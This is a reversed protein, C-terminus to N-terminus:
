KLLAPGLLVGALLQGIVAPIGLQQSFHSLLLTTVLILALTGLYGM